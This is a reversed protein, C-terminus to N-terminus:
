NVIRIVFDVRSYFWGFKRSDITHTHTHSHTHTHTLTDTHTHAHAHPPPPIHFQVQCLLLYLRLEWHNRLRDTWEIARLEGFLSHVPLLLAQTCMSLNSEIQVDEMPSGLFLTLTSGSDLRARMVLVLPGRGGTWKKLAQSHPWYARYLLSAWISHM